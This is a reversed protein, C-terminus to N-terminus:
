RNFHSDSYQRSTSSSEYAYQPANAELADERAELLHPFTVKALKTNELAQQLLSETEILKKEISKGREFDKQAELVRAADQSFNSYQYFDGGDGLNYVRTPNFEQLILCALEISKNDQYPAHIDAVIAIKAM